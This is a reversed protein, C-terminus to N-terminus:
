FIFWSVILFQIDMPYENWKSSQFYDDKSCYEGMFGIRYAKVWNIDGDAYFEMACIIVVVAFFMITWSSAFPLGHIIVDSKGFVSKIIFHSSILIVVGMVLALITTTIYVFLGSMWLPFSIIAFLAAFIGSEFLALWLIREHTNDLDTDGFNIQAGIITLGARGRFAPMYFLSIIFSCYKDWNSIDNHNNYWKGYRIMVFIFNMLNAINRCLPYIYITYRLIERKRNISAVKAKYNGLSKWNDETIPLMKMIISIIENPLPIDNVTHSELQSQYNIRIQKNIAPKLQTTNSELYQRIYTLLYLYIIEIGTLVWSIIVTIWVYYYPM